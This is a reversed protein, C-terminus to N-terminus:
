QQKQKEIEKEMQNKIFNQMRPGLDKEVFKAFYKHFSGAKPKTCYAIVFSTALAGVVASTSMMVVSRLFGTNKLKM